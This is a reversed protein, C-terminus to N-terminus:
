WGDRLRRIVEVASPDEPGLPAIGRAALLAAGPEVEDLLTIQRVRRITIPRGTATDRTVWGEVSARRDQANRLMDWQDEDLYCAVARNHVADYLTFRLSERSTLAQIRGQVAGYAASMLPRRGDAAPDAITVDDEKTEFRISRIPGGLLKTLAAAERAVRHSYPVKRQDALARGVDLYAISVTEVAEMTPSLGRVTTVAGDHDLEDVLWAIRADPSIEAKLADVLGRFSAMAQAYSELSIEGDLAITMTNNSM